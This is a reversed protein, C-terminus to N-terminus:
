TAHERTPLEVDARACTQMAVQTVPDEPSVQMAPFARTQPNPFAAAIQLKLCLLGAARMGLSVPALISSERIHPNGQQDPRRPLLVGLRGVLIIGFLMRQSLNEPFDGTSMLIGGRLSLIVSSDFGGFALIKTRLNATRTRLQAELFRDVAKCIDEADSAMYLSLIVHKYIYIYIPLSLHTYIYIYTHQVYM